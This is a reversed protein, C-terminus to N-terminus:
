DDNIDELAARDLLRVRHAHELAIIGTKRFQTFTRSVTEVTLGLYDAIEYRSMPLEVADEDGARDVMEVLFSAVREEATKRGLLVVRKQAAALNSCVQERLQRGVRADTDALADLRRRPYRVLVTDAIAEASFLHRDFAALGFFDGPLLFEAIQRRGDQMLKCTRVAGSVVKYRHDAVGGEAYIEQGRGVVLVAGISQLPDFAAAGHLAAPPAPRFEATRAATALM